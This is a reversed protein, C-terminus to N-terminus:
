TLNQNFIHAEISHTKLFWNFFLFLFYVKSSCTILESICWMWLFLVVRGEDIMYRLIATSVSLFRLSVSSKFWICRLTFLTSDSNSPNFCTPSPFTSKWCKCRSISLSMLSFSSWLCLYSYHTNIWVKHFSFM